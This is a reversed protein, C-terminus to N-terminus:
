PSIRKEKWGRYILFVIVAASIFPIAYIGGTALGVLLAVMLGTLPILFSQWSPYKLMSLARFIAAIIILDGIGVVPLVGGEYRLSICLYQLLLSKSQAYDSLIRQTLGGSFSLIDVLSATITFTILSSRTKLISGILNGISIVAILLCFNSLALSEPQWILLAVYGLTVPLSLALQTKFSCRILVRLAIFIVFATLIIAATSLGFIM